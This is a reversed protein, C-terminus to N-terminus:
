QQHTSQDNNEGCAPSRGCGHSPVGAGTAPSVTAIGEAVSSGVPSGAFGRTTSGEAVGAVNGVSSAPVGCAAGRAVDTISSGEMALGVGSANGCDAGAASCAVIATM